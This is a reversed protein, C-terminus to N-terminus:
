RGRVGDDPVRGTMANRRRMIGGAAQRKNDKPAPGLKRVEVNRFPRREIMAVGGEPRLRRSLVPQAVPEAPAPKAELEAKKVLKAPGVGVIPIAAAPPTATVAAAKPPRGRRRPVAAATTASSGGQEAMTSGLPTTTAHKPPPVLAPSADVLPETEAKAAPAPKKARTSPRLMLAGHVLTAEIRDGSNLGLTQRMGAPLALWGNYHLKLTTM